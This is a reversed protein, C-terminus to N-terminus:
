RFPWRPTAVKQVGRMAVRKLELTSNEGLRIRKALDDIHEPSM